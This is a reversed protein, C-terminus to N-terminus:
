HANGHLKGKAVFTISLGAGGRNGSDKKRM